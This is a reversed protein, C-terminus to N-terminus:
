EIIKFYQLMKRVEEILDEISGNNDIEYDFTHNNLATESPHLKKPDEEAGRLVYDRNVRICIGKRDKIADYENPFRLDTIIWNPYKIKQKGKETLVSEFHKDGNKRIYDKVLM